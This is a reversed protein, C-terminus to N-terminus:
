RGEESHYSCLVCDTSFGRCANFGTAMSHADEAVMTRPSMVVRGMEVDRMRAKYASPLLSTEQFHWSWM